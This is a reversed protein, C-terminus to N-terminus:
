FRRSFPGNFARRPPARYHATRYAATAAWYSAGYPTSIWFAQQQSITTGYDASVSVSGQTADTIRGVIGGGEKSAAQALKAVHATAMNLLALQQSADTVPGTGDNRHYLSAEAFYLAATAPQVAAFEPYRAIWAPYNFQVAVGM